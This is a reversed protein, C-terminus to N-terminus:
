GEQDRLFPVGVDFAYDEPQYQKGKSDCGCFVALGGEGVAVAVVFQCPPEPVEAPDGRAACRRPQDIGQEFPLM